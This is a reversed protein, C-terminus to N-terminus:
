GPVPTPVDPKWFDSDPNEAEELLTEAWLDASELLEDDDVNGEIAARSVLKKVSGGYHLLFAKKAVTEAEADFLSLVKKMFKHYENSEGPPDFAKAHHRSSPTRNLGNYRRAFPLAHLHIEHAFTATMRGYDAQNQANGRRPVYIEINSMNPRPRHSRTVGNPDADDEREMISTLIEGRQAPYTASILDRTGLLIEKLRPPCTMTGPRTDFAMAPHTATSPTPAAPRPPPGM